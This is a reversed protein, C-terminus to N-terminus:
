QGGAAHLSLAYSPFGEKVAPEGHRECCLLEEACGRLLLVNLLQAPVLGKGTEADPGDVRWPARDCVYIGGTLQVGVPQNSHVIQRMLLDHALREEVASLDLM